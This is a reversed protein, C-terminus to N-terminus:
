GEVSSRNFSLLLICFNKWAEFNLLNILIKTAAARCGRLLNPLMLRGRIFYLTNLGKKGPDNNISLPMMIPAQPLTEHQKLPKLVYEQLVWDKITCKKYCACQYIYISTGYNCFTFLPFHSLRIASTVAEHKLPRPNSDWEPCPHIIM